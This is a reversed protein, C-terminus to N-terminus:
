GGKYIAQKRCFNRRTLISRITASKHWSPLQSTHWRKYSCEQCTTPLLRTRVYAQADRMGELGSVAEDECGMFELFVRESRILPHFALRRLHRELDRRRDDLFRPELNGRLRRGPLDPISILPFTAQLISQLQQFHTYRREVVIHRFKPEEDEAPGSATDADEQQVNKHLDQESLQISSVIHFVAYEKASTTSETRINYSPIAVHFPPVRELWRGDEIAYSQRNAETGYRESDIFAEAVNRPKTSRIAPTASVITAPPPAAAITYCQSDLGSAINQNHSTPETFEETKALDCNTIDTPTSRRDPSGEDLIVAESTTSNTASEPTQNSTGAEDFGEIEPESELGPASTSPVTAHPEAKHVIGEYETEVVEQHM